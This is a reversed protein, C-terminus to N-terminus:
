CDASAKTSARRARGSRRVGNPTTTKAEPEDGQRNRVRARGREEAQECSQVSENRSGLRERWSKRGRVKAEDEPGLFRNITRHDLVREEKDGPGAPETKPWVYGYLKSHRECRSCNARTFYADKQVFATNCNTCHVWATEPESLLVPTLTYDGPTRRKGAPDPLDQRSDQQKKSKARSARAKPTSKDDLVSVTSSGACPADGDLAGAEAPNRSSGQTASDLITVEPFSLSETKPLVALSQEQDPDEAASASEERKLTEVPQKAPTMEPSPILPDPNESEPSTAETMDGNDCESSFPSRSPETDSCGRSMASPLPIPNVEYHSTKLRKAPTVPPTGLSEWHRKQGPYPGDMRDLETSDTTSARDGVMRQSRQRKLIRPRIDPTVSPTRSSRGASSEDRRRKRLSYGQAVATLDEEISKQVSNAADWPKWGNALNEECTQCLCECNNEGFYSEGYTVTIEEGVDIDRCARIEIGAQGCTVLRANARCDHNAFRAPGMFLSTSKSRSSVVLSFDKKRLAMEAEEEPTIVVQIGTLYKITENRKIYRRATISAEFTVITYRNTANVEFPCDPLYISMYRRLHAKFDDREKPTKLSSYFRRL